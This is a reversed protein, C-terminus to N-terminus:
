HYNKCPTGRSTASVTSFAILSTSFIQFLASTSPSSSFHRGSHDIILWSTKFCFLRSPPSKATAWATTDLFLFDISFGKDNSFCYAETYHGIICCDNWSKMILPQLGLLRRSIIILFLSVLCVSQIIYQLFFNTCITLALWKSLAEKM